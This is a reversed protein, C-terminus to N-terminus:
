PLGAKGTMLETILETLSRPARLFEWHDGALEHHVAEACEDWGGPWVLDAPVIRDQSWSIVEVPCPLAPVGSYSYGRLLKLDLMLVDAVVQKLDPPLVFGFRATTVEDIEPDLELTALDAFNLRGYLGKHPAGWSSAFLRRPPPCGAEVAAFATEVMYPFAGCHGVFAYPRDLYPALSDALERGFQKVDRVPEEESRSERGPPQVPCVVGDGLRDPWDRYSSAAGTGAYHFGFVLFAGDEPAGRLLWRTARDEGPRTQPDM